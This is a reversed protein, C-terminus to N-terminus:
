KQDKKKTPILCLLNGNKEIRWNYNNNLAFAKNKLPGSTRICITRDEGQTLDVSLDKEFVEPFLEILVDEAIINKKAAKLVREKTITLNDNTLKDDLANIFEKHLEKHRQQYAKKCWNEQGDKNLFDGFSRWSKGTEKTYLNEALRVISMGYKDILDFNM